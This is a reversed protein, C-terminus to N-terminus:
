LNHNHLSGLSALQRDLSNKYSHQRLEPIIYGSNERQGQILGNLHGQFNYYLDNEHEADWVQGQLSTQLLDSDM